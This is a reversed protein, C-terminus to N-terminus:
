KRTPARDIFEPNSIIMNHVLKLFSVQLLNDEQPKLNEVNNQDAPFIFDLKEFTKEILLSYDIVMEKSIMM